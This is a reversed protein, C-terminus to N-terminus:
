SPLIDLEVVHRGNFKSSKKIDVGNSREIEKKVGEVIENSDTEFVM